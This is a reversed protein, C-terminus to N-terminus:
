KGIYKEPLLCYFSLANRTVSQAFHNRPHATRQEGVRCFL